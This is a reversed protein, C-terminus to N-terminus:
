ARTKGSGSAANRYHALAQDRLTSWAAALAPDEGLKTLWHRDLANKDAQDRVGYQAFIEAQREPFVFNMAFFVAHKELTVHALHPPLHSHPPALPPPAISAHAAPPAPMRSPSAVAPPFQSAAGTAEEFPMLTSAQRHPDARLTLRGPLSVEGDETEEAPPGMSPPPSVITAGAPSMATSGGLAFSPVPFARGEPDLTPVIVRPVIAPRVPTGDVVTPPDEVSPGAGAGPTRAVSRAEAEMPALRELLTTRLHGLLMSAEPVLGQLSVLRAVSVCLERMEQLSQEHFERGPLHRRAFSSLHEDDSRVLEWLRAAARRRDADNTGVSAPKMAAELLARAEAVEKM